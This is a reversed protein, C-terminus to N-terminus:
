NTGPQLHSASIQEPGRARYADVFEDYARENFGPCTLMHTWATLVVNGGLAPLPAVIKGFPDSAYWRRIADVTARPVKAGYQIAIGGHELNHVLRFQDLPRDYLNFILPVPYHTGSTPPFSNYTFNKPKSSAHLRGQDPFTRAVCGGVGAGAAARSGGGSSLVIGLVVAIVIGAIALGMFVAMRRRREPGGGSFDLPGAKLRRPEQRVKPAQVPRVPRPPPPTRSKKKAM